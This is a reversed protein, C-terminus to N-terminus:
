KTDATLLPSITLYVLGGEAAYIQTQGRVFGLVCTWVKLKNTYDVIDIDLCSL